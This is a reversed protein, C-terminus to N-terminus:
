NKVINPAMSLRKVFDYIEAVTKKDDLLLERLQRWRDQVIGEPDIICPMLKRFFELIAAKLLGLSNQSDRSM